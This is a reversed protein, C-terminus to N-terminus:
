QKDPPYIKHCDDGTQATTQQYVTDYNRAYELLKYTRKTNEPSVVVIEKLEQHHVASITTAFMLIITAIYKM